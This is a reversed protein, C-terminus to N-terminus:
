ANERVFARSAIFVCAAAPGVAVCIGEAMVTTAYVGHFAQRMADIIYRFPTARSIGQLWGPGLTIPLMIGSLLMLPVVFMNILPALADESKLLLGVTYSAASRLGRERRRGLGAPRGCGRPQAAALPGRSEHSAPKPHPRAGPGFGPPGPPCKM